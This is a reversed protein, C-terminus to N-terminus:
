GVDVDRGRGIEEPELDVQVVTAAPDLVAPDGNEILYDFRAGLMLLLDCCRLAQIAVDSLAVASLGLNLRHDAPLSGRGLRESLLPLDLREVLQRLEAAADSWWVGSGVIAIPRRAAAIAQVAARVRAPDGQPRADTRYRRPWAVAREEVS